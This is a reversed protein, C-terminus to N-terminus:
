LQEIKSQFTRMFKLWEKSSKIAKIKRNLKKLVRKEFPAKMYKVFKKLFKVSKISRNLIYKIEFICEQHKKRLMLKGRNIDQTVHKAWERLNNNTLYIHKVRYKKMYFRFEEFVDEFIRYYGTMRIRPKAM